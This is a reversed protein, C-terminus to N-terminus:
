SFIGCKAENTGRQRNGEAKDLVAHHGFVSSFKRRRMIRRIVASSWRKKIIPGFDKQRKERRKSSSVGDWGVVNTSFIRDKYSEAAADSLEDDDPICGPLDDFQSAQIRCAGGFNGVLYSISSAKKATRWRCREMRVSCPDGQGADAGVYRLDRLDHGSM